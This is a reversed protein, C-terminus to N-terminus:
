QYQFKNKHYFKAVYDDDPVGLERMTGEVQDESQYLAYYSFKNNAKLKRTDPLIKHMTLSPIIGPDTASCRLLSWLCVGLSILYIAILFAKLVVPFKENMLIVVVLCLLSPVLILFLTVLIFPWDSPWVRDTESNYTLAQDEGIYHKRPDSSKKRPM